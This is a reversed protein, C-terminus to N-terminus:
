KVRLTTSVKVNGFNSRVATATGGSSGGPMRTPDYANHANGGLTSHSDVASYAFESMNAKALIVAGAERLKAVTPADETVTLDTLAVSGASTPMGAVNYNDKVVIPIGHLKGRM